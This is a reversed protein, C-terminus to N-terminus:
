LCYLRKSQTWLCYTLKNSQKLCGKNFKLRIGADYHDIFPTYSNDTTACPTIPENSLGKSKWSSIFKAHAIINFYKSIPQFILYNPTGDEEFYSKGNYYTM